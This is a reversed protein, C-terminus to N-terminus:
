NEKTATNAALTFPCATFAGLALPRVLAALRASGVLLINKNRFYNM